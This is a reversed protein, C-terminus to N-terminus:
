ANEKKFYPKSMWRRAMIDPVFEGYWKKGRAGDRDEMM